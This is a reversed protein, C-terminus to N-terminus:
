RWQGTLTFAAWFYPNSFDEKAGKSHLLSLQAERWAKARPEGDHWRKMFETMLRTTAKDNVKWHSALVSEAGAIRFARRLSMVGEGIKVEGSGSDCASLIVLETGQLNLLSAELGTLLGDEIESKPNRIESKTFHNAGALAIGCRVLPNEWDERPLSANWRTGINGSWSDRLSNTRKFEQDSLYFGHTALHLVRPSVVAKLEAERADKGLRLVCDGGLLTAVSKAEEESGPLRDFRLGRYDRSLSRAPASTLLSQTLSGSTPASTLLSQSLAPQPNITSPQPVPVEAEGANRPGSSGPLEFDFDPNGMVVSKPSQVGARSKDSNSKPGQEKSEPSLVGSEPSGRKALRVIERGSGVYSIIKDEILFRDHHSSSASSGSSLPLMEFPLRSLEGDPCVILHSVDTLHEALPVYVLGSLRELAQALDKAAYQGASMRKCVSEVAENIPTAKGLDARQVLSNTSGDVPPFTLYAAYRQEKWQNTGTASFDFRRYQIFDALASHPPLSRTIDKLTLNRDRFTQALIASRESLHQELRKFESELERRRSGRSAADLGSRALRGLQFKLARYQERLNRMTVDPDAEFAAQAARGEELLAKSLATGEAGAPWASKSRSGRSEACVSHLLEMSDFSRRIFRMAGVDPLALAQGNLHRRLRQSLEVAAALCQDWRSQRGFLAAVESLDEIVVPHDPGSIKQDILLGRQYASLAEPFRKLDSLVRGMAFLADAVLPHDPDLTKESIALSRQCADLAERHEGLGTLIQALTTLSDAVDPHENGLFRQRIDLARRCLPLAGAFDEQERYLDALDNLTTAVEFHDKGFLKEKIALERQFLPEAQEYDALGWYDFALASLSDAVDKHQSGLLAERISLSRQDLHLAQADEGVDSYCSALESLLKAVNTSRSGFEEEATDLRQKIERIANTIEAVSRYDRYEFTPKNAAPREAGHARAALFAVAIKCVTLCVNQCRQPLQVGLVYWATQYFDLTRNALASLDSRVGRRALGL